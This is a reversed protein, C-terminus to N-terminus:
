RWSDASSEHRRISSKKSAWRRPQRRLWGAACPHSQRRRHTGTVDPAPAHSRVRVLAPSRRFAGRPSLAPGDSSEGKPQQRVVCCAHHRHPWLLPRGERRTLASRDDRHRRRNSRTRPSATAYRKATRGQLHPTRRRRARHSRHAPPWYSSGSERGHAASKRDSVVSRINTGHM